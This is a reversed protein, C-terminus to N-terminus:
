KLKDLSDPLASRYYNALSNGFFLDAVLAEM